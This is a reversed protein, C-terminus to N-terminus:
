WREGSHYEGHCSGTCRSGSYSLGTIRVDVSGNVHNSPNSISTSGSLTDAHCEGCDVGESIHDRHDGSMGSSSSRSGHCSSCNTSDGITVSGRVGAGNGHCYLNSCTRSGIAFSGASSLGGSMDVEAVGATSDGVFVHGSSMVDSPTDHCSDCDFAPHDSQEVHETHDGFSLGTTGDDIDEPPAGTSNDIGGHCFTCDTRWGTSHCDDCSTSASGGTLSSGHCTTCDSTQEKAELGHVGPDDWGSGHGSAMGWGSHTEGHCTGTCTEASPDWSIGSVLSVDIEGDVHQAPFAIGTSGSATAAHCDECTVGDAVHSSHGVSLSSASSADGHCDGCAVSGSTTASGLSGAGDGHCYLNSCTSGSLIGASSLGSAMTVEAQAATSDGVHAHGSSSMSSPVAHCEDCDFAVHWTTTEVHSSHAPFSLGTSSDDM